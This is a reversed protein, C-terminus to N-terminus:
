CHIPFFRLLALTISYGHLLYIFAISPLSFPRTCLLLFLGTGKASVLIHTTKKEQQQLYSYSWM